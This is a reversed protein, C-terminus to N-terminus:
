ARAAAEKFAGIVSVWGGDYGARAAEARAGLREWGRHELELRTGDGDAAFRVEVETPTTPTRSPRWELV